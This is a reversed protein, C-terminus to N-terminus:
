TKRRALGGAPDSKAAKLAPFLTAAICLVFTTLSIMVFSEISINVPLKSIIYVEPDLPFSYEKLLFSILTGLTQGAILGIIGIIMGSTVFIMAISSDSAGIAKLIAIEKRKDLVLMYLASLVGFSSVTILFFLLVWIVTRHFQLNQFVQPNLESWTVVRLSVGNQQLASKLRASVADAQDMNKLRMEIGFVTPKDNEGTPNFFRTVHIHTYALKQDYEEFGAFFIGTVCFEFNKVPVTKTSSGLTGSFGLFPSVLTVADGIKINLRDALAKGLIISPWPAKQSRCLENGLPKTGNQQISDLTDESDDFDSPEDTDPSYDKNLNLSEISGSKLHKPLDLVKKSIDPSIGKILVGSHKGDKMILMENLNFPAAEIVDPDKRSIELPLEFNSFPSSHPMLLIHGNVGLIKEKFERQFGSSVSWVISIVATGLLVSTISITTFVNFFILLGTTLFTLLGVSTLIIAPFQLFKIDFIFVSIGLLVLTISFLFIKLISKSKGPSYLYKWSTFIEFM